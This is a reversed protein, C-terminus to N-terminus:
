VEVASKNELVARLAASLQELTFPKTLLHIDPDTTTSDRTYGTTFLVKLRPRLRIAEEALQRGNMHPMVIDTFLLGVETHEKLVELAAHGSEAELTRYGLDRIATVAVGRVTPEDEVVLVTVVDNAEQLVSPSKVVPETAMEGFYRPLYIKVATGSGM